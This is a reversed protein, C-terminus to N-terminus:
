SDYELFAEKEPHYSIDSILDFDRTPPHGSKSPLDETPHTFSCDRFHQDVRDSDAAFRRSNSRSSQDALQKSPSPAVVFESAAEDQRVGSVCRCGKSNGM